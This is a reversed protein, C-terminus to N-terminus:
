ACQVEDLKQLYPKTAPTFKSYFTLLNRTWAQPSHDKEVHAKASKGLADRRASNSLLANLADALKEPDSPPVLIGTNSELLYPTDGVSTAVIPLGAAMAELISVPTGELLSSNVYIDTVALLRPVDDRQGLLFTHGDLGLARIQAALSERQRGDGAIVLAVSPHAEHVRAFAQLLHDFGKQPTLRGVSLVLTREADGVLERRLSGKEDRSLQPIISADVANPLVDISVDAGVQRHGFEAVAYGNALIGDAFHRLCFSGIKARRASIRSSDYGANRFSGLFPTGSLRGALSGIINSYTLYGQVLDFRERRLFGILKLFSIPSFLKPFPFTVVRAGAAQLEAPLPSTPSHSLSIVTVDIGLPRLSKVLFLQMKQAGGWNLTDLMQAIRM